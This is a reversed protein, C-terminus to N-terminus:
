PLTFAMIITCLVIINEWVFLMIQNHSLLRMNHLECYIAYNNHIISIQQTKYQLLRWGSQKHQFRQGVFMMM